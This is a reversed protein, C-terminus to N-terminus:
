RRQAQHMEFCQRCSDMSPTWDPHDARIAEIMRLKGEGTWDGVRDFSPFGCLSCVRGGDKHSKSFREDRAMAILEKQTFRASESFSQGGLRSDIYRNWLASFRERILNNEVDNLGELPAEPSYEFVPDLMDSVRLLEHRLFARLLDHCSIRTTQIGFVVTKSEGEVYLEAGEHKRSFVGRVIVRAHFNGLLPFESIVKEFIAKLGLTEFHNEYFGHFAKEDRKKEYLLDKQANFSKLRSREGSKELEKLTLFVTEEMFASEFKVLADM